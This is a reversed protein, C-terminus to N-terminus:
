SKKQRYAILREGGSLPLNIGENQLLIIEPTTGLAKAVDWLTEGNKAIHVSFATTSLVREEGLELSSIIYKTDASAIHMCVEIEASIGIENGRIIKTTVNGVIGKLNVIDDSVAGSAPAVLSFPLEVAVSNKENKEANYYIVNGSVLGEYTISGNNAVVNAINLKAGTVALITDVIPMNIDLTVSGEVRDSFASSLKNKYVAVSQGVSNLENTVSFADTIANLYEQRFAKVATDLVIELLATGKEGDSEMTVNCSKVIAGASIFDGDRVGNVSVEESFQTIKHATFILGDSNECTLATYINGQLVVCDIMSKASHVIARSEVLLIKNTTLDKIEDNIVVVTNTDNVLSTFEIKDDHTYINEGGKVL